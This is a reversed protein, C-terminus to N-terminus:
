GNGWLGDINQQDSGVHVNRFQGVGPDSADADAAGQSGCRPGSKISDNTQQYILSRQGFPIDHSQIL